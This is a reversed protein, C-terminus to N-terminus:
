PRSVRVTRTKDLTTAHGAIAMAVDDGLKALAKLAAAHVKFTVVREVAREVAQHDFRGADALTELAERLAPEDYAIQPAPSPATLKLGGAHITWSAFSDMRRLVEDSVMRKWSAIERYHDAIADLARALQDETANGLDVLEGTDPDALQIREGVQAVPLAPLVSM